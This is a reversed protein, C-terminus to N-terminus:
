FVAIVLMTGLALRAPALVFYVWPHRATLARIGIVRAAIGVAGRGHDREVEQLLQAARPRQVRMQKTPYGFLLTLLGFGQLMSGVLLV